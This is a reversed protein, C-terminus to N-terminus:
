ALSSGLTVKVAAAAEAVVATSPKPDMSKLVEEFDLENVGDPSEAGRATAHIRVATILKSAEASVGPETAKTKKGVLKFNDAVEVDDPLEVVEGPQVLRNLIFSVAQAEYKAM